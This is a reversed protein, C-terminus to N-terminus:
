WERLFIEVLNAGQIAILLLMKAPHFAQPM